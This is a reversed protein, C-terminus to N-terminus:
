KRFMSKHVRLVPYPQLCVPKVDERLELYVPTTNWTGLTGDFLDEYKRFLIILRDREETNLHQFRKTM